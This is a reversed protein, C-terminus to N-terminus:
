EATLDYQELTLSVATGKGIESAISIDIGLNKCIQRCLYLGLGSARKDLRGNCGTYGKEFVRPLDEPAIGIGTDEICLTDPESMYIKVSGERTYKLSNSLIQEIVFQLWKEDTVATKETGSYELAIKKGIFESAFKKVAQKIIGDLRYEKFVYDSSVSDLRLYALVMEVYSEIRMLEAYLKRSLPTDENELSLRMSAIPTKIQHVWVTYYDVTDRYKSDSLDRLEKMEGRLAAALENLDEAELSRPEPLSVSTDEANKVALDYIKHDKAARRLDLAILVAAALACLLAPYGVAGIPLRYLRFSAAFVAAFIVSAAIIRRRYYLYRKLLKM